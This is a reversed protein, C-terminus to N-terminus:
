LHPHYGTHDSVGKDGPSEEKMEGLEDKRFSLRVIGGTSDTICDTGLWYDPQMPADVKFCDGMIEKVTGLEDGDMTVVKTGVPPVQGGAFMTM